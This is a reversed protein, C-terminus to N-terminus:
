KDFLGTRPPGGLWPRLYATGRNVRDTLTSITDMTQPTFQTAHCALAARAQSADAPTYPVRMTLHEDATSRFLAPFKSSALLEPKLGSNPLAAYYLRDTVGGAQVVQTVVASVLRHDGHGYGGEPGWTVIADPALERFTKELRAALDALIRVDHLGGDPLGYLIPTKAGLHGAACAVEKVRAAALEPGAPIKSFPMAGKEGNTAVVLYVEVGPERGYRALLPGAMTEDDPHAFVAVIKRPTGAPTAQPQASAAAVHLLCGIITTPFLIRFV